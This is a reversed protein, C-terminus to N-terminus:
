SSITAARGAPAWRWGNLLRLLAGRGCPRWLVSTSRSVRAGARSKPTGVEPRDGVMTITQRITATAADLDLDSWRLGLLEGRRMGTTASLRWAAGLRDSASAAVFRGLHTASWVRMEPTDKRPQDAADCPNVALRRWRVADRLARHLLGHVNRVSKASLGGSRGSAGTRGNALLEAYLANLTAGDVKGLELAGLRPVVYSRIMQRYSAATSPKVTAVKAPLWEDILFAEVTGRSPRVFTGRAQEAVVIAEAAEALKKTAFGRKKHQHRRGDVGAVDVVFYWTGRQQDKKVSM